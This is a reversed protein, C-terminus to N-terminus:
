GIGVNNLSVIQQGHFYTAVSVKLQQPRHRKRQIAVMGKSDKKRPM